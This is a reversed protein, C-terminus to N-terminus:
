LHSKNIISLYIEEIPNGPPESTFFEGTLVPSMPETGVDPPDGPSSFPLGTWYEDRPHGRSLPAEHTVTWPTALSSLPKLLFFFFFPLSPSIPFWLSFSVPASFILYFFQFSTPLLLLDDCLRTTKLCPQENAVCRSSQRSLSTDPSKKRKEEFFELIIRIHM